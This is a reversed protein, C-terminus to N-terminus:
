VVDVVTLLGDEVRFQIDRGVFPMGYVRGADQQYSPRPDNKLVAELARVDTESFLRRYNEPIEVRLLSWAHSDTFGGRASPHSDVSPLYPKIDFIPTGDMLDAGAVHIGEPAIRVIRVSSLGLGNPRFPSRSAFVGVRINGGLRPPRVTLKESSRIASFGWILWLFDFDELGRIAEPRNYEPELVIIGRLEDVVGSQRPVGFKSTLPSRFFAIPSITKM